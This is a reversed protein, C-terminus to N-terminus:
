LNGHTGNRKRQTPKESHIAKLLPLERHRITIVSLCSILVVIALMGLTFRDGEWGLETMHGIIAGVMLCSGLLAGWAISSPILLLVCALLELAGILYRGHPEMGLETFLKVSEAHGSFKFFLTQGMIAVAILQAIWSLLQLKKPTRHTM